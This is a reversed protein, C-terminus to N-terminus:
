SVGSALKAEVGGVRGGDGSYRVVPRGEGEWSGFTGTKRQVKSWLGKKKERPRHVINV